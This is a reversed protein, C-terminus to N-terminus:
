KSAGIVGGHLIAHQVVSVLHNVAHAVEPNTLYLAIGFGAMFRWGLGVAVNELTHQAGSVTSNLHDQVLHSGLTRSAISGLVKGIVAFM